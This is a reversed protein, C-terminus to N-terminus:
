PAHEMLVACLILRAACRGTRPQRFAFHRKCPRLCGKLDQYTDAGILGVAYAFRNKAPLLQTARPALIVSRLSSGADEASVRTDFGRVSPELLAVTLIVHGLQAEHLARLETTFISLHFVTMRCPCRARAYLLVRALRLCATRANRESGERALARM